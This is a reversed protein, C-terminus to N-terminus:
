VEDARREVAPEPPCDAYRHHLGDVTRELQVTRSAQQIQPEMGSLGGVGLALLALGGSGTLFLPLAGRMSAM